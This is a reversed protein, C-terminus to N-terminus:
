FHLSRSNSSLFLLTFSLVKSNTEGGGQQILEELNVPQKEVEMKIDKKTDIPEKTTEEDEGNEVKRKQNREELLLYSLAITSFNPDKFKSM